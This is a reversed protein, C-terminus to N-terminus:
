QRTGEKEARLMAVFRSGVAERLAIVNRGTPDLSKIDATIRWSIDNAAAFGKSTVDFIFARKDKPDRERNILRQKALSKTAASVDSPAFLLREAIDTARMGCANYSLLYLVCYEVLTLGNNQAQNQAAANMLLALDFMATGAHIRGNHVREVGKDSVADRCRVMTVLAEGQDLMAWVDRMSANAAADAQELTAIGKKTIGVRVIRRDTKGEQRLVLGANELQTIAATCSSQTVFLSEALISMPVFGGQSSLRVLARYQTPTIKCRAGLADRFRNSLVMNAVVSDVHGERLLAHHAINRSPQKTM